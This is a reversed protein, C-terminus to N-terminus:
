VHIIAELKYFHWKYHSVDLKTSHNQNSREYPTEIANTGIQQFAKQKANEYMNWGGVIHNGYMFTTNTLIM